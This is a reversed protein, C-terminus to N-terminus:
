ETPRPNPATVRKSATAFAAAARVFDHFLLLGGDALGQEPHWQVGVLFNDGTGEVAEVVGDPAHATVALGSGVVGVGQHHHSMIEFTQAGLLVELGSGAVPIVEHRTFTGVVDRHPTMDLRDALHQELTGGFAVNIVQMGRCVGYIPIGREAARKTLAIELDDRLRLPSDNQPHALQGYLASDMDSGGPLLLGDLADLIRDINCLNAAVSPIMIPSGGAQEIASIYSHSIADNRVDVWPGVTVTKQDAVLGILPATIM